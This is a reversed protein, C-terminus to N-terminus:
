FFSGSEQDEVVKVMKMVINEIATTYWVKDIPYRELNANSFIEVGDPSVAMYYDISDGKLFQIGSDIGKMLVKYNQAVGRRTLNGDYMSIVNEALAILDSVSKCKTSLQKWAEKAKSANEYDIDKGQKARNEAIRIIEKELMTDIHKVADDLDMPNSKDVVLDRVRKLHFMLGGDTKYEYLDNSIKMSMRYDDVTWSPDELRERIKPLLEEIEVGDLVMVASENLITEVITSKSSGKFSAGTATTKNKEPDRLLYNKMGIFLGEMGKKEQELIMMPEFPLGPYKGQIADKLTQNLYDADVPGDTYFGDTDIEIVNGAGIANAVYHTTERGTSTVMAACVIDSIDLNAGLLGYCSNVAIKMTLQTSDFSDYEKKLTKYEESEEDLLEMKEKIEKMKKKADNRVRFLEDIKDPIIGKKDTRVHVILYSGITRDPLWIELHDDAVHTVITPDGGDEFARKTMDYPQMEEPTELPRTEVLKVTDPSINYTVMLSPYMSSFDLKAVDSFRGPNRIATLAGQYSGETKEYIEKYRYKNGVVPYTNKKIFSRTMFARAFPARGRSNLLYNMSTHSLESLKQTRPLYVDKLFTTQRIDSRLYDYLKEREGEYLDLMNSKEEDELDVVDPSGYFAAVTKMRRNKTTIYTDLKVNAEFIDYSARGFGFSGYAKAATFEDMNVYGSPDRYLEKPLQCRHLSPPLELGLIHMRKLTYPDDFGKSFYGTILDPDEKGIFELFKMITDEEREEDFIFVEKKDEGISMQAGIMLIRDRDVMPSRGHSTAVEIDYSLIRPKRNETNWKEFIEDPLFYSIQEDPSWTRNCHEKLEDWNHSQVIDYNYDIRGLGVGYIGGEPVPLINMTHAKKEKLRNKRIIGTYPIPFNELIGDYGTSALYLEGGELRELTIIM